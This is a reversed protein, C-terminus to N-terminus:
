VKRLQPAFEPDDLVIKGREAEDELFLSLDRLLVPPGVAPSDEFLRVVRRTKIESEVWDPSTALQRALRDQSAKDCLIANPSNALKDVSENTHNSWATMRGELVPSLVSTHQSMRSAKHFTFRGSANEGRLKSGFALHCKRYAEDLSKPIGGYFIHNHNQSYLLYEM